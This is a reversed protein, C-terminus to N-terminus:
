IGGDVITWNNPSGTLIAKGAAGAATYKISGFSISLNPKLTLLSWNNYISDLNAASYNAATKASMFGTFNLVNSVDWSGIDQNFATAQVFMYQMNTVASTDWNNINSSGGNNFAIAANFMSTMNTVASVDWSGINQNFSIADRFMTSTNTVASTDWSGIDQNFATAGDLMSNMLLVNSTNWSGIDQNFAASNSFMSSMNTVNSVDWNGINGNFNTCSRFYSTLSTSSITPADTASCTLNTCGQFGSDVSINLAGWTVVNLMKLKDGGNAFRWGLLSGLVKITYTGATAYTHIANTHVTINELASGDGWDVSINLGTSTTLPMRFQTSTSVGANDTKVSFQFPLAEDSARVRYYYTTNSNLGIVVYSTSPANVQQDEYVFTSFDSSESVDLLYYTAGSYANWNATFSTQGVGTAATAVPANQWVLNSGQYVAQVQNTGLKVTSIDLAGLKM